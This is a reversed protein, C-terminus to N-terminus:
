YFASGLALAVLTRSRVMGTVIVIEEPTRCYGFLSSAVLRSYKRNPQGRDLRPVGANTDLKSRAGRAGGRAVDRGPRRAPGRSGAPPLPIDTLVALWRPMIRRALAAPRRETACFQFIAAASTPMRMTHSIKTRPAPMLGYMRGAGLM